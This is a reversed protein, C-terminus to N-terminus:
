VMLPDMEASVIRSFPTMSFPGLAAAVEAAAIFLKLISVKWPCVYNSDTYKLKQIDYEEQLGYKM